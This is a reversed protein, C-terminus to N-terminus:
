CLSDNEEKDSDNSKEKGSDKCKEDRDKLKEEDNDKLKSKVPMCNGCLMYDQIRSPLPLRHLRDELRIELRTDRPLRNFPVRSQRFEIYSKFGSTGTTWLKRRQSRANLRASNNARSEAVPVGRDARWRKHYEPEDESSSSVDFDGSRKRTGCFNRSTDVELNLGMEDEEEDVEDGEEEDEESLGRVIYDLFRNHGQYDQRENNQDTYSSAIRSFLSIMSINPPQQSPPLPPPTPSVSDHDGSESDRQQEPRSGVISNGSNEGLLNISMVTWGSTRASTNGGSNETEVSTDATTSAEGEPTSQLQLRKLVKIRRYQQQHLESEGGSGESTGREETDESSSSRKLPLSSRPVPSKSLPKCKCADDGDLKTSTCSPLADHDAENLSIIPLTPDVDMFSNDGTTAGLSENCADPPPDSSICEKLQVQCSSDELTNPINKEESSDSGSTKVELSCSIDCPKPEETTSQECEMLCDNYTINQVPISSSPNTTDSTKRQRRSADTLKYLNRRASSTRSREDEAGGETDSSSSSFDLGFGIRRTSCDTPNDADNINQVDRSPSADHSSDDGGGSGDCDRRDDDDNLEGDDSSDISEEDSINQGFLSFPGTRLGRSPLCARLHFPPYKNVNKGIGDKCLKHSKILTKACVRVVKKDNRYTLKPSEILTEYLEQFKEKVSSFNSHEQSSSPPKETEDRAKSSSSRPKNDQATSSSENGSALFHVGLSSSEVSDIEEASATTAVNSDCDRSNVTSPNPLLVSDSGQGETTNKRRSKDSKRTCYTCTSAPDVGSKFAPRAGRTRRTSDKPVVNFISKSCCPNSHSGNVTPKTRPSLPPCNVSAFCPAFIGGRTPKENLLRDRVLGLVRQRCHERLSRM